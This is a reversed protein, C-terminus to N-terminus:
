RESFPGAGGVLFNLSPDAMMEANCAKEARMKVIVLKGRYAWYEELDQVMYSVIRGRPLHLVQGFDDDLTVAHQNGDTKALFDVMNKLNVPTLYALVPQHSTGELIFTITHM